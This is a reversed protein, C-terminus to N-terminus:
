RRRGGSLQSDSKTAQCLNWIHQDIQVTKEHFTFVHNHFTTFLYRMITPLVFRGFFMLKTLSLFGFVNPFVVHFTRQDDLISLRYLFSLVDLEENFFGPVEWNEAGPVPAHHIRVPLDEPQKKM